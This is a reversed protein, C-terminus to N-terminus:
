RAAGRELVEVLAGRLVAVPDQGRGQAVLARHDGTLVRHSAGPLATSAVTVLGDNPGHGLAEIRRALLSYPGGDRPGLATGLSAMPVREALALIRAHHHRMWAGRLRTTLDQVGRGSGLGLARLAHHSALYIPANSCVWDAVPSGHFPSQLAVFGRVREAIGPRLMAALAELGGKSHGVLVAPRDDRELMRAILRANAEVPSASPLEPVSVPVGLSELWDGQTVMYDVGMPKLGAMVEGFLGFCLLVRQGALLATLRADDSL